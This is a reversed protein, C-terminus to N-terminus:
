AESSPKGARLRRQRAPGTVGSKWGHNTRTLQAERDRIADETATYTFNFLDFQHHNIHNRGTAEIIRSVFKALEEDCKDITSLDPANRSRAALELLEDLYRDMVRKRRYSSLSVLGSAFLALIMLLLAIPEANEQVFSPKDKEYYARAGDHLPILAGIVNQPNSISGALPQREILDRRNEFLITTLEYIVTDPVMAATTLMVQISVAPLNEMPIPPDGRYSGMPMKDQHLAPQMLQLASAQRIPVLQAGTQTILKLLAPNGPARIRFLADVDGNMFVWETTKETGSIVDIDSKKLGYHSMLFWFAKYEGSGMPPLAVRKGNLDGIATINAEPRVILQFMDRYLDAVMRLDAGTALDVQTTALQVAGKALLNANDLSGRTEYIELKIKSSNRAVVDKFAAMLQFAQGSRPGAGVALVYTRQHEYWWLGAFGALLIFFVITLLNRM